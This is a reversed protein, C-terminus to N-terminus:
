PLCKASSHGRPQKKWSATKLQLVKETLALELEKSLNIGLAKAEVILDERVSLGVKKKRSKQRNEAIV